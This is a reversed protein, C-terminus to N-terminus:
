PSNQQDERGLGLRLQRGKEQWCGTPAGLNLAKSGTPRGEPQACDWGKQKQEEKYTDGIQM